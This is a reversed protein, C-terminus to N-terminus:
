KRSILVPGPAWPGSYRGRLERKLTKGAANKPLATVFEISQPVKYHALQRRCFEILEAEGATEGPKLVVLAKPVEGWKDDPVPIVASECVSPHAMLIREIELSSINEGGSIITDKKRDVIRICGDDEIAAMDGTRLWGGALAEATAQKERWYGQMVGDTRVIIEGVTRGDKPVDADRSDVVRLEVGPIPYGAMAQQEFRLEGEASCDPKQRAIALVPGTETLGYGSFCDCGLEETVKHVLAPSCPAGGLAIWELSRLNYRHRAPHAVLSAAMTPVLIGATVREREILGFVQEPDFRPLMVHKGGVLTLIHAAGWGNAHFLPIAHLHADEAKVRFTVLVNLAHLYVNRHTMVVGKPTASTGSTYFLEAPADEDLEMLDSRLPSGSALLAEYNESLLWSAHPTGDLLFFNRVTVVSRHFSEVVPLFSSDFFLARAGAANLIYSLENAALRVNLPLLVAGAELVGYYAELMRHCNFSLFAVRDGQEIGVEKLAGALRGARVGFEQYTFRDGGCIVATRTSFQEQAYRLFRLPTLPVNM